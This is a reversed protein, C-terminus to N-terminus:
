VPQVAPSTSPMRHEAALAIILGIVPVAAALFPVMGAGISATDVAHGGIIGGLANAINFASINATAALEPAKGSHRMVRMQMPPVNAFSAVGFIVAAIVFAWTNFTAFGVIVLSVIMAAIGGILARNLNSDAFRGGVNNGVVLGAGVAVLLLTVANVSLGVVDQSVPSIYGYFTMFGTWGFVTILLSLWLQSSRFAGLQDRISVPKADVSVRPVFASIAAIAAIGLIAVAWFTTNWGFQNGIWSGAPVGLVNALTLGAFMQGVARGAMKESVLGAAMVAGIGYFPGQTLGTIIRSIFLVSYNSTTASIINGIVFLAMLGLLVTKREFRALGITLLPGGIVIAMAYATILNGAQGDSIRLADAVQTLIGAIVFEATGIAFASLTLVWVAMPMKTSQSMASDRKIIQPTAFLM